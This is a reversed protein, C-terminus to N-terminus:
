RRAQKGWERYEELTKDRKSANCSYHAFDINDMDHRGGRSIPMLHELTRSNPHPAKADLDIPQGCLICTKDSAEWKAEILKPTANGELEARARRATAEGVKDPNNSRWKKIRENIAERNAELYKRRRARIKDANAADRERRQKILRERNARYYKHQRELCKEKNAEYYKRKQKRIREKKNQEREREQKLIAEKNAEYSKRHAEQKRERIAAHYKRMRDCNRARRCEDSCYTGRPATPTFEKECWGCAKPKYNKM